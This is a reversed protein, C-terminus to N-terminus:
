IRNQKGSAAVASAKRLRKPPSHKVWAGSFLARTFLSLRPGFLRTRAICYPRRQRHARRGVNRSSYKGRRRTKGISERVLLGLGRSPERFGAKVRVRAPNENQRIVRARAQQLTGQRGREDRRHGVRAGRKRLGFDVMKHHGDSRQSPVGLLTPAHSLPLGHFSLEPSLILGFHLLIFDRDM